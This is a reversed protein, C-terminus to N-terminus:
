GEASAAAGESPLPAPRPATRATTGPGPATRGRLASVVLEPVLEPPVPPSFHFGQGTSCGQAQLVSRQHEHEVGEAVTALDLTAAMSLIADVLSLDGSESLRDVFSKDIKLIDVPLRHLYSLSSYGTGFDDIALRVGRARLEALSALVQDDQGVLVSETVELVLSTAPLGTEALVAAVQEVLGPDVLQHGSVNVSVRMQEAGPVEARWTAVQQCAERLVHAGIADILGTTEALPIFTAPGLVGRSPHHWRVLAEVGSVGGDGMDVLPQYVVRFQGQEVAARLDTELQVREVLAEHMHPAYVAYGGKRTSKAEYMALDAARMLLEADRGATRTSALGASAGVHVQRGRVTFPQGVVECTRRALQEAEDLEVGEDLLVAFEDGGLRAVTDGERVAGRLREAVAVLLEDGAGHGLADNVAKFGDLDLYCVKVPGRGGRSRLAHELRDTFLARNPLGTLADTFAQRALQRELELAATVDRGNVVLGRVDPDDLLDTVVADVDVRHGDAHRLALRLEVQEAGAAIASDLADLTLAAGEGPHLHDAAPRGVASGEAVGLVRAAGPNAYSIRREADVVLVLDSSHAVLSAFRRRRDALAATREEVRRELHHRLRTTRRLEVLTRCVVLLLVGTSLWFLVPDPGSRVLVTSLVTTLVTLGAASLAMAAGGSLEQRDVRQQPRHRHLLAGVLVTAWGLLWLVAAATDTSRGDLLHGGSSTIDGACVVALGAWAVLLSGEREPARLLAHVVTVVVDLALVVLVVVAWTTATSPRQDWGPGLVASWLVSLGALLLLLVDLVDRLLGGRTQQRASLVAVAGIALAPWAVACIAVAARIAPSAEVVPLQGTVAVAVWAAAAPGLLTWSTRQAGSRSRSRVVSAVAAALAVAAPLAATLVLTSM